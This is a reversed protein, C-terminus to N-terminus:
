AKYIELFIGIEHQYGAPHKVIVRMKNTHLTASYQLWKAAQPAGASIGIEPNLFKLNVNQVFQKTGGYAAPVDPVGVFNVFVDQTVAEYMKLHGGAIYYDYPPEVDVVTKVCDVQGEVTTIEAGQADYLKLTADGNTSGQYDNNVVSGLVSTQLQVMRMQYNWGAPAVKVRSMPAGDSDFQEISFNFSFKYNSEFDAQDEQAPASKRMIYSWLLSGSDPGYLTYQGDNEAFQCKLKKRTICIDKFSAWSTLEILQM